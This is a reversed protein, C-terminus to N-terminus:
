ANGDLILTEGEPLFLKSADVSEVVLEIDKSGDFVVGKANIAGTLTITRGTKLAEATKANEATTSVNINVVGNEDTTVTAAGTGKIAVTQEGSGSGGAVLKLSVANNSSSKTSEFTYTTNEQKINGVKTDVEKIKKQIDGTEGTLTELDAVKKVLGAKSDGVSTKLSSIDSVIDASKTEDSAIWTSVKKLTNYAEEAGDVVTAVAAAALNRVSGEVEAGGNLKEIADTATKVQKDTYANADSLAKTAAGSADAGVESATYTPKTEAKAWEQVVNDEIKKKLEPTFSATTADLIDKNLHVHGSQSVIETLEEPTINAYKLESFKHVGDGYKLKRTDIELLQEGKLYIKQDIAFEEATKSRIVVPAKLTAM